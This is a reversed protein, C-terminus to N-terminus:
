GFEAVPQGSIRTVKWKTGALSAASASAPLLALLV